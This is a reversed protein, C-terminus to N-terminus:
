NPATKGVAVLAGPNPSLDPKLSRTSRNDRYTQRALTLIRTAQDPLPHSLDAGRIVNRGSNKAQYLQADVLALLERPSRAPPASSTLVGISCTVHTTTPSTDHIIARKGLAHWFAQARELAGQYPTEPLIILFEEGGFRCALDAPRQCIQNLLTAVARLCDDGALHGYRDNFAKFHDVDIMILSLPHGSRNARQSEHALMHDLHRRNALGTLEDVFSLMALRLNAAELEEACDPAPTTGNVLGSARENRGGAGQRKQWLVVFVLSMLAIIFGSLIQGPYRQWLTLPRNVLAANTPVRKLTVNWRRLQQWDVMDRSIAPLNLANSSLALQGALHDLALKATMQGTATTDIVRGGLFGHQVYLDRTGFVPVKAAKGVMEAVDQSIFRRGSRDRVYDDPFLVISGKGLSGIRELMKEYVLNSTLEVIPAPSLHDIGARIDHLVAQSDDDDGRVVVLHRTNPLLRLALTATAQLDNQELVHVRPRSTTPMQRDNGIIALVPVQPHFRKGDVALFDYAPRQETIIMALPSGGFKHQLMNILNTRHAIDGKVDLDLHEVRINNRSIGHDVLTQVIAARRFDADSSGPRMSELILILRAPSTLDAELFPQAVAPWWNCLFLWFAVVAEVSRRHLGRTM